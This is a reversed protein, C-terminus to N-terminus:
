NSERLTGRERDRWTVQRCQAQTSQFHTNHFVKHLPKPSCSQSEGCIFDNASKLCGLGAFKTNNNFIGSRHASESGKLIYSLAGAGGDRRGAAGQTSVTFDRRRRAIADHSGGSLEVVM